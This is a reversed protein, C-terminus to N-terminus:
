DNIIHYQSLEMEYIISRAEDSECRDRLEGMFEWPTRRAEDILEKDHRTMM